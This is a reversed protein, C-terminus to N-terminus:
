PSNVQNPFPLSLGRMWCIGQVGLVHIACCLACSHASVGMKLVSGYIRLPHTLLYPRTLSDSILTYRLVTRGELEFYPFCYNCTTGVELSLCPYLSLDVDGKLTVSSWEELRRGEWCRFCSCTKLVIQHFGSAQKSSYAHLHVIRNAAEPSEGRFRHVPELFRSQVPSVAWCTFISAALGWPNGRPSWM